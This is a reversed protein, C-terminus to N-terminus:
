SVHLAFTGLLAFLAAVLVLLLTDTPLADDEITESAAIRGQVHRMRLYALFVVVAGAILLLIESWVAPQQEGLRASALGFGVIAIATRVWSLFTRENAAHDSYNVIM